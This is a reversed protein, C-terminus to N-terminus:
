GSVEKELVLRKGWNHGRVYDEKRWGLKASSRAVSFIPLESNNKQSGVGLSLRHWNWAPASLRSSTRMAPFALTLDWARESRSRRFLTNPHLRGLWLDNAPTELSARSASNQALSAGVAIETFRWEAFFIFGVPSSAVLKHSELASFMPLFFLHGPMHDHSQEIKKRALSSASGPDFGSAFFSEFGAVFGLQFLRWRGRM